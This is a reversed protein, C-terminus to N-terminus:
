RQPVRCPPALALRGASRRVRRGGSIECALAEGRAVAMVRSVEAATPPHEEAGSSSRLWRRIARSALPLPAGSVAKADTPDLDAALSDLLSADQGVVEAMRALIPVPDRGSIEALLPILRERVQTRRFRRDLNSPDALPELGAADCVARTESRRLWILPRVARGPVRMGALGDAGSGRLLNLLVTEAQDDATHGTLVGAPLVSYRAQRARAQLDPGPAVRVRLAAFRAGWTRAAAAVLDAEDASGPRLGHDVHFATAELGATRALVLLALSDPGGSVALEVPGDPFRCRPLLSGTLARLDL